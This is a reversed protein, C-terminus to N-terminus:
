YTVYTWYTFVFGFLLVCAGAKTALTLRESRILGGLPASTQKLETELGSAIAESIYGLRKAAHICYGVEGLSARAINLFRLRTRGPPNAFGEVINVAVSFAARRLQGGLEYREFAQFQKLSLRHLRIFLDDARQWAVLTHHALSM